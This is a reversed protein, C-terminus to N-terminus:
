GLLSHPGRLDAQDLSYERPSALVDQPWVGSSWLLGAALLGERLLERRSKESTAPQIEETPEKM